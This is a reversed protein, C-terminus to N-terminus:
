TAAIVAADRHRMIILYWVLPVLWPLEPLDKAAPLIEVTSGMRFFRWIGSYRILEQDTETKVECKSHWFNATVQYRHGDALELTGSDKFIGSTFAALDAGTDGARIAVRRQWFGLRTFTWTGDSSEAVAGTRFWGPFRLTAVAASGDLLQYSRGFRGTERWKLKRWALKGMDTM